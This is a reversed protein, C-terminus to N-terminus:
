HHSAAVSTVRSNSNPTPIQLLAQEGPFGKFTGHSPSPWHYDGQESPLVEEVESTVSVRVMFCTVQVTAAGSTLIISTRPVDVPKVNGHELLYDEWM